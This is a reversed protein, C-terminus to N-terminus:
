LGATFSENGVTFHNFASVLIQVTAQSRQTGVNDAHLRHYSLIRLIEQGPKQSGVSDETKLRYPRPAISADPSTPACSSTWSALTGKTLKRDGDRKVGTTADPTHNSPAMFIEAGTGREGVSDAEVPGLRDKPRAASIYIGSVGTTKLTPMRGRQRFRLFLPRCLPIAPERRYRAGM